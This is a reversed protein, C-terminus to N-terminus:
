EELSALGQRLAYLAAQTRNTLHLKILINSVYKAITREHIKMTEAIEQNSMGRAIWRLTEQERETLAESPANSTEEEPKLHSEESLARMTKLAISPDLFACGDAVEQIAQILREQQTDILSYGLAGAKIAAFVQDEATISTLVLVHVKPNASTLAHIAAVGDEQDMAIDMLVVDPKLKNALAVAQQGTEAEGVLKMNPCASITAELGARILEHENAILIRIIKPQVM